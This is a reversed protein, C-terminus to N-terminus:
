FRDSELGIINGQIGGIAENDEPNNRIQLDALENEADWIKANIVQLRNEVSEINRFSEPYESIRQGLVTMEDQISDLQSRTNIYERSGYPLSLLRVQEDNLEKYRTNDEYYSRYGEPMQKFLSEKALEGIPRPMRSPILRHSSKETGTGRAGLHEWWETYTNDLDVRVDKLPRSGTWELEEDLSTM